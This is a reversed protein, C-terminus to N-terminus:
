FRAPSLQIYKHTAGLPAFLTGEGEFFKGYFEVYQLRSDHIYAGLLNMALNFAHGVILILVGLAALAPNGGAIFGVSYQSIIQAIVAGSLMLGYLRAYSLIDSAYNIIGYVAGFGKTFKGLFKEKRGATLMALLLSVGALIGGAATLVPLGSQEILGVFALGAGLSFMAWILGDWVGDWFNGRRWEQVARCFYGVLLQFVGMLLAIALVAPVSVGAFTWMDEQPNPMVTPLFALPLGFFSNFLAGWVVAFLGGIAFVGSLRRFGSKRDKIKLCIGGGAFFMILGYGMDGIIFGMFVSYFLAMVLDPDFERANPPSYMNTIPEFNEVIRGNKLLTPPMEDPAPDSFEFYAAETVGNVAEKVKEEAEAPVYAELLFTRETARLKESLEAKELEYGLRDCYVKLLRVQANMEYVAYENAAIERGIEREKELLSRAKERGSIEETFPCAEFEAEGLLAEAEAAASKHFFAAATCVDGVAKTECVALPLAAFGAELKERRSLPIKGLRASTHATDKFASFLSDIGAYTEAERREKRVSEAESFLRGREAFLKGIRDIAEEAATTAERGGASMFESYSIEPKKSASPNKVKNQREYGSIGELLKELAEEARSYRARLEEADSVPVVTHEAAGHMKVEVAGTRQMADFLADKDYSMAVLNFKKMEAVAM